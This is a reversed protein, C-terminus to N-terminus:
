IGEVASEEAFLLRKYFFRKLFAMFGRGKLYPIHPAFNRLPKQTLAQM